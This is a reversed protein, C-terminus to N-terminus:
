KCPFVGANVLDAANNFESYDTEILFSGKQIILIDIGQPGLPKAEARWRFTIEDCTHYINLVDIAPQPSSTTLNYTAALFIDKSPATLQGPQIPYPSNTLQKSHSVPLDWQVLILAHLLLDVVPSTLWYPWPVQLLGGTLFNISDSQVTFDDALFKGAYAPDFKVSFSVM